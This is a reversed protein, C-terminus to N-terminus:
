LSRGYWAQSRPAISPTRSPEVRDLDEVHAVAEALADVEVLEGERGGRAGNSDFDPGASPSFFSTLNVVLGSASLAWM